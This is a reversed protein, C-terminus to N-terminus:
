THIHAPPPPAACFVLPHPCEVNVYNKLVSSNGNTSKFSISSQIKWNQFHVIFMIFLFQYPSLPSPAAPPPHNILCYMILLHTFTYLRYSKTSIWECVVCLYTEYFKIDHCFLLSLRPRCFSLHPPRCYYVLVCCWLVLHWSMCVTLWAFWVWQM